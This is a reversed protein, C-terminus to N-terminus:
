SLLYVKGKIKSILWGEIHLINLHLKKHEEFCMGNLNNKYTGVM